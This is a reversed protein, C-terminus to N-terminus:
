WKPWVVLRTKGAAGGGEKTEEVGVPLVAMSDEGVSGGGEL